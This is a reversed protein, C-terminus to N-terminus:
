KEDGTALKMKRLLEIYKPNDKFQEYNMKAAIYANTRMEYEVELCDMAKDYEGLILYREAKLGESMWCKKGYKEHMRFMEEIAAIHGGENFAKLVAARGENNWHGHGGVKKDWSEIWKKYDGNKYATRMHIDFLNGTAFGFNPDISLAKEFHLIASEDNNENRMVVGYLGLVLPKLPDLELGLNAQYLAEDSRRLIMLLHAYYLRCLANNPDLELSRLFEKEGKEWEWETWVAIIGNVYHAQASNPDLELAKNLYKYVKPLTVSQPLFKFFSFLGWANALGAYPDAWEPDIETALEFYDLAKEASKKDLKEWYYRGKLYADYADPDVTRSEALLNEERPTLIVNVEESIQKTVRNYLNLIQSKDEYYDQV